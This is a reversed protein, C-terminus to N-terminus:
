RVPGLGVEGRYAALGVEGAGIVYMACVVASLLMARREFHRAEAWSPEIGELWKQGHREFVM